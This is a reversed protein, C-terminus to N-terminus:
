PRERPGLSPEGVMRALKKRARFLLVRVSKEKLELALAIERHAFGEVYALWLLTQEQTKLQGFVGMLDRGRETKENGEGHFLRELSWRRERKVRRWHDSILASATRYLYAKMQFKEMAPLKARLFRYFAEQLIDDSLAADGSVRRIYARIAPGVERYLATFAVEDLQQSLQAREAIASGREAFAPAFYPDAADQDDMLM